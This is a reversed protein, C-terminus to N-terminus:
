RVKKNRGIVVGRIILDSREGTETFCCLLAGKITKKIIVGPLQALVNEYYAKKKLANEYEADLMSKSNEM